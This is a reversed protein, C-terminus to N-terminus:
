QARLVEELVYNVKVSRDAELSLERQIMRNLRVECWERARETPAALTLVGNSWSVAQLPRIYIDFVDATTMLELQGRSAEWIERMTRQTM